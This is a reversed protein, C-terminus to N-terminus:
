NNWFDSTIIRRAEELSLDGQAIKYAITDEYDGSGASTRRAAQEPTLGARELEHARDPQFCRAALWEAIEDTDTFGHALWRYAVTETPAGDLAADGHEELLRCISRAIETDSLDDAM